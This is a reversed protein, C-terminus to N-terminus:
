QCDHIMQILEPWDAAIYGTASNFRTVDLSRDIEIQDDPVISINKEFVRAILRLLNYKDIPRSGVHYVGSLEENPIVIDRVVRAFEVTPLGSFIARRYGKCEKQALFWELLGRRTGLERGITSTRLTLCNRGLVEGLQKSKGYFDVADPQDEESYNGKNGSFVCDTSVQILRAGTMGCYDALRHPLLSNMTLAFIPDSGAPAHKTLGACNVVVDPRFDRFLGGIHDPITLDYGVVIEGAVFDPFIPRAFESRLTGIVDFRDNDSLVRVMTNGIMGNAGLVLVKM